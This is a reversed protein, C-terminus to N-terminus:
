IWGGALIAHFYLYSRRGCDHPQIVAYRLDSIRSMCIETITGNYGLSPVHATDGVTRLRGDIRARYSHNSQSMINTRHHQLLHGVYFSLFRNSYLFIFSTLFLKLIHLLISYVLIDIHRVDIVYPQCGLVFADVILTIVYRM